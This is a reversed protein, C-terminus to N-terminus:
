SFKKKMKVGSGNDYFEVRDMISRMLFVGRGSPKAANDRATPDPLSQFDFGKGEDHVDLIIQKRDVKIHVKVHRDPNLANGHRMANTLAEELALKIKFIEEKTRTLTLIKRFVQEVFPNVKKLDTPLREQLEFVTTM